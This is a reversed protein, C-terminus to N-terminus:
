PCAHGNAGKLAAQLVVFAVVHPKWGWGASIGSGGEGQRVDQRHTGGAEEGQSRKTKKTRQCRAVQLALPTVFVPLVPSVMPEPGKEALSAGLPVMM